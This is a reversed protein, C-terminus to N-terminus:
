RNTLRVNFPYPKLQWTTPPYAGDDILHTRIQKNEIVDTPKMLILETEAARYLSTLRLMTPDHISVTFGTAVDLFLLNSAM